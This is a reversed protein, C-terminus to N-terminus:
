VCRGVDSNKISKLKEIRDSIKDAEDDDEIENKALFENVYRRGADMADAIDSIWEKGRETGKDKVKFEETLPNFSIAIREKKYNSNVVDIKNM